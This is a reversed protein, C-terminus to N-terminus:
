GDSVLAGTRAPSKSAMLLTAILVMVVAFYPAYLRDWDWLRPMLLYRAVCTVVCAVLLTLEAGRLSSGRLAALALGVFVALWMGEAPSWYYALVQAYLLPSFPPTAERWDATGTVFTYTFVEWWSARDTISTLLAYTLLVLGLSGVARARTWGFARPAALGLAGLAGFFVLADARTLLALAAWALYAGYSRKLVLARAALMTFAACLVDPTAMAAPAAIFPAFGLLGVILWGFVSGTARHVYMGMAVSLLVLSAASVAFPAVFANMGLLVLLSVPILFALRDRYFPLQASLAEASAHIASRYPGATLVRFTAPDVAAEAEAYIRRHVEEEDDHMWGLVVAGYGIADWNNTRQAFSAYARGISFIMFAAVVAASALKRGSM